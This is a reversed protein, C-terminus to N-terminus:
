AASAASPGARRTASLAREVPVGNLATIRGRLSPVQRVESVGPMGASSRTSPPLRIRSSTSSSSRPRASRCIRTSRARRSQRARARGGGAGRAWPRALRRDGGHRARGISIPSRWACPRGARGGPWSRACRMLRRAALRFLVLAAAAGSSSGLAIIRDSATALALACASVGGRRCRARAGPPHAATAEPAVRSRFLSPACSAPRAWLGRAFALTASSGMSRPRAAAARSLNRGAGRGAARDAAAPRRRLAGRRRARARARHRCRRAGPDANSLDRVCIAAVRGPM